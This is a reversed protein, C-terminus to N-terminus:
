SSGVLLPNSPIPPIESIYLSQVMGQRPNVRKTRYPGRTGRSVQLYSFGAPVDSTSRDGSDSSLPGWQEPRTSDYRSGLRSVLLDTQRCLYSAPCPPTSSVRDTSRSTRRHTSRPTNGNRKPPLPTSEGQIDTPITVSGRTETGLFGEHRPLVSMRSPTSSRTRVRDPRSM